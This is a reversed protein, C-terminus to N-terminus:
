HLVEALAALRDGWYARMRTQTAADPLKTHQIAVQSKGTGKNLFYVEVITRDPWGLRMSKRPIATRVTFTEEPLWRRRVRGDTFARYLRAVPVSLTKSKGAEFRGDRRQGKARLGRIREYGVTVMQSWWGGVKYKGHVLAVIDRHTMERAGLRDLAKVWREWTCGTKAKLTADSMGALRAYAAPTPAPPPQLVRSPPRKLLQTRAATYSEGTKEMRVRVLRKFDKDTPM